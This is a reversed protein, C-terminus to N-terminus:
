VVFLPLLRTWPLSVILLPLSLSLPMLKCYDRTLMPLPLLSGGTMRIAGADLCDGKGWPFLFLNRNKGYGRKREQARRM